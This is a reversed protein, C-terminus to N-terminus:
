RILPQVNCRLQEIEEPRLPELPEAIRDSDIVGEECLLWKCAAVIPASRDRSAFAANIGDIIACLRSQENKAQAIDGSMVANRLEVCAEPVLNSLVSILGSSGLSMSAMATLASGHFCLLEVKAERSADILSEFYKLDESSEKIGLVIGAQVMKIITAPDLPPQHTWPHQYLLIPGGSAEAIRAYHGVLEKESHPAYFPTIAAIFDAGVSRARVAHAIAPRTYVDGVHAIVPVRGGVQEVAAGVTAARDLENLAAFEGTTGNVWIGHVGSLLLREVHRRYSALDPAGSAELPTVVPVLIGSLGDTM